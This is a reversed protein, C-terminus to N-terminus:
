PRKRWSYATFAGITFAADLGDGIGFARIEAEKSDGVVLNVWGDLVSNWTANYRRALRDRRFEKGVRMTEEDDSHEIWITPELLLWLLDLKYDLRFRTAEAWVLRTGPVTGTLQTVAARLMVLSEHQLQERDVTLLNGMRRRELIVPRERVLARALADYLLGHEQSEYRLRHTEIAHVDWDRINFRSFAKRVQSDSGFALVGLNRRTAVVEAGCQEVARRVESTGGIDCTFRRCITPSIVVPLANLRVVPWSTPGRPFPAPTVRLARRDLQEAVDDPVNPILRMVDALLEDFTEVEILYAGIGKTQAEDILATVQSSVTNGSRHFWFLGSPYGRGETIAERLTEMVSDDRGSYGVVALGFRRCAELLAYRLEADQAQLEEPTNKLRRSQFDGHLKGLLPWRAGNLAQLAVQPEAPTATILATTSGFLRATVDEITRDFNTTWVVHAMGIKLLSALALHGFSPTAAKVKRDIYSRRDMEDPYTREFYFAYEDDAGRPPYGGEDDFHQQIRAQVIPNALDSCAALSVRQAACFLQRKFEWVMQGATPVGAAASAGAGLFWMLQPARQPYLRV